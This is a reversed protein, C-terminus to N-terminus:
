PYHHSFMAHCVTLHFLLFSSSNVFCYNCCQGIQIKFFGQHSSIHTVFKVTLFFKIRKEFPSTYLWQKTWFTSVSLWKSASKSKGICYYLVLLGPQDRLLPISSRKLEILTSRKWSGKTLIAPWKPFPLCISHPETLGRPTPPPIKSAEEKRLIVHKSGRDATYANDHRLNTLLFISQPNWLPM